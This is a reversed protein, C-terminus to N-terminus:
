FKNSHSKIHFYTMRYNKNVKKINFIFIINLKKKIINKFIYNFYFINILNLFIRFM